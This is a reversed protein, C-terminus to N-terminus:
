RKRNKWEDTQKSYIESRIRNFDGWTIKGNYLDLRNKDQLPRVKSKYFDDFENTSKENIKRLENTQENRIDDIEKFVKVIVIKEDNNIKSEDAMFNFNIDEAKCPSKLFYLKYDNKQCIANYKSDANENIKKVKNFESDAIQKDELTWGKSVM